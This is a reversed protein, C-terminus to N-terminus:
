DNSPMEKLFVKLNPDNRELHAVVLLCIGHTWFSHRHTHTQFKIVQGLNLKFLQWKSPFGTQWHKRLLLMQNRELHSIIEVQISYDMLCMM